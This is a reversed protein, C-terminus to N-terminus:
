NGATVTLPASAFAIEAVAAANITEPQTANTLGGAVATLLPSGAKTDKFYFSVSSSAAAITASAIATTCTADSYFSGGTSSSSLAVSTASAVPSANNFNDRSQLTTIASCAGAGLTQSGTIFALRT